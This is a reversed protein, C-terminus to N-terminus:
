NGVAPSYPEDPSLTIGSDRGDLRAGSRRETAEAALVACAGNRYSKWMNVSQWDRCEEARRICEDIAALLDTVRDKPTDPTTPKQDAM